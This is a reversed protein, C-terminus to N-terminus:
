GFGQGPLIAAGSHPVVRRLKWSPWPNERIKDQLPCQGRIEVLYCGGVNPRRIQPFLNEKESATGWAQFGGLIRGFMGGVREDKFGWCNKFTKFRQPNKELLQLNVSSIKKEKEKEKKHSDHGLGKLLIKELFGGGGEHIEKKLKGLSKLTSLYTEV